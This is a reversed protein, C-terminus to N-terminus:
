SYRVHSSAGGRTHSRRNQPRVAQQVVRQAIAALEVNETQSIHQLQALADQDSGGTRGRVIGIAQNIVSQSKLSRHPQEAAARAVRRLQADKLSLAAPKAFAMGLQVAHHGFAARSHAYCNISGIMQDDILLPLSLASEVGLGAIRAGFRRWRTDASLSPSVIPRRSTMSAICPGQSLEVFQRIDLERVFPATFEWAQVHLKGDSAHLATVSVGDVGPIAHAALQGVESLLANMGGAGGVLERLGRLAAQLKEEDAERQGRNPEFRDAIARGSRANYSSLSGDEGLSHV